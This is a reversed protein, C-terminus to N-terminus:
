PKSSPADEFFGKRKKCISKQVGGIFARNSRQTTNRASGGRPLFSTNFTKLPKRVASLAPLLRYSQSCETVLLRWEADLAMLTSVQRPVASMDFRNMENVIHIPGLWKRVFHLTLQECM